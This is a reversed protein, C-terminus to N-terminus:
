LRNYIEPFFGLFLIGRLSWLITRIWNSSVLQSVLEPSWAKGLEGHIPVFVFFTFGWILLVLSLQIGLFWNRFLFFFFISLILELTMTPVVIAGTWKSHFEHITRFSEPSALSFSPYQVLQVYWIVGVLFWTTFVLVLFLKQFLKLEAM